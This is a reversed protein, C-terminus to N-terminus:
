GINRGEHEPVSPALLSVLGNPIAVNHNLVILAVTKEYSSVNSTNGMFPRYKLKSVVLSIHTTSSPFLM